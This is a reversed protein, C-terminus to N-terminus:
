KKKKKKKKKKLFFGPGLLVFVFVFVQVRWNRARSLAIPGQGAVERWRPVGGLYRGHPLHGGDAVVPGGPHVPVYVFRRADEAGAAHPLVDVARSACSLEGM